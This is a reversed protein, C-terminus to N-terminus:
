GCAILGGYELKFVFNNRITSSSHATNFARKLKLTIVKYSIIIKKFKFSIWDYYIYYYYKILTIKQNYYLNINDLSIM